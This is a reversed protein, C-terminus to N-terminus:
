ANGMNRVSKAALCNKDDFVTIMCWPSGPETFIWVTNAEKLSFYMQFDNVLLLARESVPDYEWFSGWGKECFLIRGNEAVCFLCIDLCNLDDYPGYESPFELAPSEALITEEEGVSKGLKRRYLRTSARIGSEETGYATYYLYGDRICDLLVPKGIQLESPESLDLRIRCYADANEGSRCYLSDGSFGAIHLDCSATDTFMESATTRGLIVGSDGLRLLGTKEGNRYVLYLSNGHMWVEGISEGNEATYIVKQTGANMDHRRIERKTYSYIIPADKGESERIANLIGETEPPLWASCREDSHTCGSIGCGYSRVDGYKGGISQYFIVLREPETKDHGTYPEYTYYRDNRLFGARDAKDVTDECVTELDPAETGECVTESGPTETTERSLHRIGLGLGAFLIFILFGAAAGSVLRRIEGLYYARESIPVSVRVPEEPVPIVTQTEKERRTRALLESLMEEKEEPSFVAPEAAGREFERLEANGAYRVATKLKEEEFEM